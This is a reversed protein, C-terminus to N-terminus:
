ADRSLGELAFPLAVARADVGGVLLAAGPENAPKKLVALGLERGDALCTKSTIRGVVADGHRVEDVPLEGQCLVGALARRPKGMVDIRHISEQGLYCGKEFHLVADRLGHEHPLGPRVVDDPFRVQGAAIRLTEARDAGHPTEPHLALQLLDVGEGGRDRWSVLGDGVAVHGGPPPVPLGADRLFSTADAGQVTQLTCRGVSQIDVDDFVVYREYREAFAEADLGELVLRFHDDALAHLEMLGVLRGRDDTMASRQSAGVPLDRVNNTFMGNAFRRSDPGVLDVVDRPALTAVVSV